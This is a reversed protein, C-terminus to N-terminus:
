ARPRERSDVRDSQRERGLTLAARRQARRAARAHRRKGLPRPLDRRRHAARAHRRLAAAGARRPTGPAIGSFMEARALAINAYTWRQGDPGTGEALGLGDADLGFDGRPIFSRTRCSGSGRWAAARSSARHPPPASPSTPRGSTPRSSGSRTASFRCAKAIGGATELAGGHDRGERSYTIAVGFRAGDGVTAVIQEELWDTNIVVERVGGRALAELHWEILRKGHVELLPKPTTDSLPRMRKGRGAALVIAKM